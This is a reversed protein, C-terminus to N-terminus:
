TGQPDTLEILNFVENLVPSTPYRVVRPSMALISVPFALPVAPIRDSIRKAIEAYADAQEQGAPLTRAREIKTALQPDEYGFEQSYSGFLPGLFTDPDEYTGSIGLLHM